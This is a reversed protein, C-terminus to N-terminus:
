GKFVVAEETPGPSAVPYQTKGLVLFPILVEYYSSQAPMSKDSAASGIFDSVKVGSSPISNVQTLIMQPVLIESALASALLLPNLISFPAVVPFFAVFTGPQRIPLESDGLLSVDILVGGKEKPIPLRYQYAYDSFSISLEHAQQWHEFTVQMQNFSCRLEYRRENLNTMEGRCSTDARITRGKRNIYSFLVMLLLEKRTLQVMLKPRGWVLVMIVDKM